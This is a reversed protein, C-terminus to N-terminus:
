NTPIDKDYEWKAGANTLKELPKKINYTDETNIKYNNSQRICIHWLLM